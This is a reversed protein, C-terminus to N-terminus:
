NSGNSMNAGAGSIITVDTPDLLLTGTQGKPALTNVNGQFDLNGKGSVEVFGGNGGKSGGQAEVSGYFRTTDNAWIAVNGGNGNGIANAKIVANPDVYTVNANAEPGQGHFNGGVLVTGGGNAGSVDILSGSMLGVKDGLVKVTGGVEGTNLGTARLAGSNQVIGQSGGDLIIVGNRDAVSNAEIVGSNNVVTALLDGASRATLFVQGGQAQISGQNQISANLASKDVNFNVLGDCKIDLSIKDGSALLVSGLHATILGQNVIQPALLAVFGGSAANINGQNLISGASGTNQFLYNGAMFNANSIDLTSAVLGSVDVQAGSGFLVGSPNVLFVRGNATLSGLIYSPDASLVRNLAASQSNPQLFNVGANQGINFSQWNVIMNQTNQTVQMHNGAASIAGAGGVVVGNQPLTSPDIAFAPLGIVMLLRGLWVPMRPSRRRTYTIKRGNGIPVVLSRKNAQRRFSRNLQKFNDFFNNTM